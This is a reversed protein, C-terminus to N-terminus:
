PHTMSNTQWVMRFGKPLTATHSQLFFSAVGPIAVPTITESSTISGRGFQRNFENSLTAKVGPVSELSLLSGFFTSSHGPWTLEDFELGVIVMGGADDLQQLQRVRGSLTAGKPISEHENLKVQNQLVASIRDGITTSDARLPVELAVAFTIGGPLIERQTEYRNVKQTLDEAASSDTVLKSEAEFTRCHSFTMTEQHLIGTRELAKLLASEPILVRGSPAMFTRYQISLTISELPLNSPIETATLDLRMLTLDSEDVWFDGYEGVVGQAGLWNIAWTKSLTPMTFTFHLAKKGNLVNPGAAKVVGGNAVFVDFAFSRFIGNSLLGHGVLAFLDKSSFTTEGPWSYIEEKAGLGVDVQIVDQKQAKHHSRTPQSRAITELCTYQPLHSLLARNTQLTHAVLLVEPPLDEAEASAVIVIAIALAKGCVGSNWFRM